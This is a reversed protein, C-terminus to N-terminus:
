SNVMIYEFHRKMNPITQKKRSTSCISMVIEILELLAEQNVLSVAYNMNESSPLFM